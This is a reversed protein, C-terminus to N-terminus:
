HNPNNIQKEKTKTNQKNPTKEGKNQMEDIFHIYLLIKKKLHVFKFIFCQFM